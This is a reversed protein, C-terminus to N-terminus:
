SISDASIKIEPQTGPLAVVVVSNFTVIGNIAKVSKGKLLSMNDTLATM